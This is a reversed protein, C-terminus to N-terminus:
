DLSENLEKIKNLYELRTSSHLSYAHLAEGDEVRFTEFKMALKDPSLEVYLKKTEDLYDPELTDSLLLDDCIEKFAEESLNAIFGNAVEQTIPIEGDKSVCCTLSLFWDGNVKQYIYCYGYANNLGIEIKM